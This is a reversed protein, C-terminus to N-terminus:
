VMQKQFYEYTKTNPKLLENVSGEEVIGHEKDIFIIEESNRV